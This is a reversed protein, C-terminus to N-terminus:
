DIKIQYAAKERTIPSTGSVVVMVSQADSGVEFEFTGMNLVDLQLQEVTTLNGQRIITVAYTQPLTNQVRVFGEAMWGGSDSELDNSYGIANIRFDDLTFGKGNVAADTVYDFQVTVQKGIYSSLDVSENIWGGSLGNWGCGYSNGSPNDRTCTKSDLIEWTQGDTTASIFVYDYDEELDYWTKFELKVPGTVNTLDFTQSLRPNSEDGMNSWYFYDGSTPAAFPLLNVENKGQFNLTHRGACSIEIYDTGFQSVDATEITPCDSLDETVTIPFPTYSKYSFRGDAVTPDNLYNAVSWEVFLEIGTYPKGTAPNTLALEQAVKDISSFGNEDHAVLAKTADEGFRDLFYSLFLYSAGYHPGNEGIDGGWDTLQMDPNRVFEWDFGGTDYGNLQEALMAAGENMWTEENKDQYWHIMHQFEHAMTGYIYDEGLGVNDASMLFMEHANSYEHADPHLEDASSFYGAINDGLGKAYLVYIRPDDDVGPTWEEGFFERDTPIIEQDFTEALRNLESESYRVGNQIWFYINDGLYRLTADIQFNENTDTNSVWFRKSAGVKYPMNTDPFTVPVDQKGGLRDALEIPDNVPVLMGNLTQLSEQAGPIYPVETPSELDIQPLTPWPTSTPQGLETLIEPVYTTASSNSKIGAYALGAVVCLAVICCVVLLVGIVILITTTVGSNTSKRQM